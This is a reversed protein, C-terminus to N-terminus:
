GNAGLERSVVGEAIRSVQEDLAEGKAGEYKRMHWRRPVAASRRMRAVRLMEKAPNTERNRLAAVDFGDHM